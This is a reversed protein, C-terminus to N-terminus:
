SVYVRLYEILNLYTKLEKLNISFTLNIIIALKEEAIILDFVDVIQRLLVIFSYNLFVKKSNLAVNYHWLRQFIKRLHLLHDDLTKFFIIIDNMYARVFDRLNKLMLNTQRQVYSSFNKYRMVCVNFQKQERHSIITLKHRDDFKVTWQYFYELVNVVFIYLCEAVAVTINTQASMLYVDIVIIANLKWIDIIARDKRTFKDDKMVTKYIVFISYEFSIFNTFWKMKEKDHLNDFIENVIVREKSRLSYIKNSKIKDAWDFKFTISMHNKSSIVISIDHKEWINFKTVTSLFKNVIHWFSPEPVILFFFSM